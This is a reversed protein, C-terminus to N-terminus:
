VACLGAPPTCPMRRGGAGLEDALANARTGAAFDDANQTCGHLMLVLPLPKGAYSKPIYLKYDRAGAACNFTRTVFQGPEAQPSQQAEPVPSAGPASAPRPTPTTFGPVAVGLQNLLDTVFAPLPLSAHQGDRGARGSAKASASAAKVSEMVSKIHAANAQPTGSSNRTLERLRALFGEQIKM